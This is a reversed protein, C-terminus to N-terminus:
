GPGRATDRRGFLRWRPRLLRKAEGISLALVFAIEAVSIEPRERRLDNATDVLVAERPNLFRAIHGAEAELRLVQEFRLFDDPWIGRSCIAQMDEGSIRRLCYNDHIRSEQAIMWHQGCRTCTAAYLWWQEGGHDQVSELTALIRRDLDDPHGMGVIVLDDLSSCCCGQDSEM